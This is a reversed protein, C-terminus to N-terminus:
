AKSARYEELEDAIWDERAEEVPKDSRGYTRDFFPERWERSALAAQHIAARILEAESTGRRKAARKIQALDEAEAYVTTRQLSM